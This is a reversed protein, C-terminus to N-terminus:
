ALRSSLVDSLVAGRCGVSFIFLLTRSAKEYYVEGHSDIEEIIGHGDRLCIRITTNDHHRLASLCAMSAPQRSLHGAEIALFAPPKQRFRVDNSSLWVVGPTLPLVGKARLIEGLVWGGAEFTRSGWGGIGSDRTNDQRDRHHRSTLGQQM